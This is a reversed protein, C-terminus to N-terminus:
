LDLEPSVFEIRQDFRCFASRDAFAITVNKPAIGTAVACEVKELSQTTPLMGVDQVMASVPLQLPLVLSIWHVSLLPSTPPQNMFPVVTDESTVYPLTPM